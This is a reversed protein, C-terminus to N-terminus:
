RARRAAQAVALPRALPLPADLLAILDRRVSFLPADGVNAVFALVQQANMASIRDAEVASLEFKCCTAVRDQLVGDRIALLLTLNAFQVDSPQAQNM